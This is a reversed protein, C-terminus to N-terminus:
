LTLKAISSLGRQLIEKRRVETFDSSQVINQLVEVLCRIPNPEIEAIDLESELVRCRYEKSDDNPIHGKSLLLRVRLLTAKAGELDKELCMSLVEARLKAVEIETSSRKPAAM